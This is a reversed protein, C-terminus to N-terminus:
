AYSIMLGQLGIESLEPSLAPECFRSKHDGFNLARDYVEIKVWDWLFLYSPEHSQAPWFISSFGRFDM